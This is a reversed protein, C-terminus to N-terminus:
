SATGLPFSDGLRKGQLASIESTSWGRCEERIKEAEVIEEQCEQKRQSLSEVGAEADELQKRLEAIERSKQEIDTETKDLESRVHELEAPDCDALDQAISELNRREEDLAGFKADLAPVVGSLLKEQQRLLKEDGDMGEAIKVLGERLGEQLAMRWAYWMAKSELRAHTKGNKFQNDLISKFDPTASMYERFLPPNEEFTESEIERVIRRGESIYKKLERCSHQYLELMPVTCAGAVVCRELSFNEEGDLLGDKFADPAQTHRRKTTTLEMFRISTMNLFDQLHIRDEAGESEFSSEDKVPSREYDM